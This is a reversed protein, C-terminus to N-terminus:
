WRPVNGSRQTGKLFLPSEFVYVVGWGVMGVGAHNGPIYCSCCQLQKLADHLFDCLCLRRGFVALGALSFFTLRFACSWYIKGAGHYQNVTDTSRHAMQKCVM